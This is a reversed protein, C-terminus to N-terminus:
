PRAAELLGLLETTVREDFPPGWPITAGFVAVERAVQTLGDLQRSLVAPDTWGVVRTLGALHVVAQAGSFRHLELHDHGRSPSPLVMAALPVKAGADVAPPAIATRDDVTTVAPPPAAFADLVARAGARMRLRQAGAVAAVPGTVDLCLVDDAVLRAGAACLLAALTSKGMGSDAVFAIAAGDREVASAHLVLDGGVSRVFACVIGALLIDVLERAVSPDPRCEITTLARDIRFDCHGPVRLTYGDGDDTAVYWRRVDDDRVAM